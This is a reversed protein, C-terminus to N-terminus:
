ASLGKMQIYPLLIPLRFPEANTCGAAEAMCNFCTGAEREAEDTLPEGCECREPHTQETPAFRTSICEYLRLADPAPRPNM